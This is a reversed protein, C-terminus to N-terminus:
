HYKLAKFNLEIRIFCYIYLTLMKGLCLLSFSKEQGMEEGGRGGIKWIERGPPLVGVVKQLDKWQHEKCVLRYIHMEGKACSPLVGYM